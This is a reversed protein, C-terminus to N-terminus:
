ILYSYCLWLTHVNFDINITINFSLVNAIDYLLIIIKAFFM